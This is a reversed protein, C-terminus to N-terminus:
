TCKERVPNLIINVLGASVYCVMSNCSPCFDLLKVNKAAIGAM